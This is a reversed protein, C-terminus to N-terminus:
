RLEYESGLPKRSIKRPLLSLLGHLLSLSNCLPSSPSFFGRTKAKAEFRVKMCIVATLHTLSSIVFTVLYLLKAFMHAPTSGSLNINYWCDMEVRTTFLSLIDSSRTSLTLRPWARIAATNGLLLGPIFVGSFSVLMTGLSKQLIQLISKLVLPRDLILMKPFFLLSNKCVNDDTRNDSTICCFIVPTDCIIQWFHWRSTKCNKLTNPCNPFNQSFHLLARLIWNASYCKCLFHCFHRVFSEGSTM